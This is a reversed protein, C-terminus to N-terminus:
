VHFEVEADLDDLGISLSANGVEIRAGSDSFIISNLTGTSVDGDPESVKVTEGLDSFSLDRVKKNM